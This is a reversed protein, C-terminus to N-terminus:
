LRTPNITRSKGIGFFSVFALYKGENEPTSFINEHSSNPNTKSFDLFITPFNGSVHPIIKPISTTKQGVNEKSSSGSSGSTGENHGRARAATTFEKIRNIRAPPLRTFLDKLYDIPNLGHRWLKMVQRSFWVYGDSPSSEREDTSRVSIQALNPM